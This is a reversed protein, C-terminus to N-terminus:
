RCTPSRTRSPRSATAPERPRRRRSTSCRRCRTPRSRCREARVLDDGGDAPPVLLRFSLRRAPHRAQKAGPGTPRSASTSTIAARPRRSGPSSSAATPSRAGTSTARTNRCTSATSLITAASAAPRRRRRLGAPDGDVGGGCGAVGHARVRGRSRPVFSADLMCRGADLPWAASRRRSRLDSSAKVRLSLSGTVSRLRGDAAGRKVDPRQSRCPLAKGCRVSNDIRIAAASTASIRRRRRRPPIRAPCARCTAPASPRSRLRGRRRGRLGIRSVMGSASWSTM